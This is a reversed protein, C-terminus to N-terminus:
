KNEEIMKRVADCTETVSLFKGDAMAIVCQAKDTVHRNAEETRAHLNVVMQPNVFVEAGNPAHLLLMAALIFM